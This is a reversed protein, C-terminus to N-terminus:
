FDIEHIGYKKFQSINFETDEPEGDNLINGCCECFYFELEITPYNRTYTCMCDIDKVGQSFCKRCVTIKKTIM